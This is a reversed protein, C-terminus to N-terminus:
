QLVEVWVPIEVCNRRHKPLGPIRIVVSALAGRAGDPIGEIKHPGPAAIAERAAEITPIECRDDYYVGVIKAPDLVRRYWPMDPTPPIPFTVSSWQGAADYYLNHYRLM